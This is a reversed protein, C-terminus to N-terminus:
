HSAHSLESKVQVVMPLDDDKNFRLKRILLASIVEIKCKHMSFVTIKLLM